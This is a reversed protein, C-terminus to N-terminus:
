AEAAATSENAASLSSSSVIESLDWGTPITQPEPFPYFLPTDSTTQDEYPANM